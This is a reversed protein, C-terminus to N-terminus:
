IELFLPVTDIRLSPATVAVKQNLGSVTVTLFGAPLPRRKSKFGPM